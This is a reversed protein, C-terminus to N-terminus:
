LFNTQPSIFSLLKTTNLRGIYSCNTVRGLFEDDQCDCQKPCDPETTQTLIHGTLLIFNLLGKYYMSNTELNYM